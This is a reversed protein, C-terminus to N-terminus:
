LVGNQDATPVLYYLITVEEGTLKSKILLFFFFDLVFRSSIKTEIRLRKIGNM